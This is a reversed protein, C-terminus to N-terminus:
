AVAEMERGAKDMCPAVQDWVWPACTTSSHLPRLIKGLLNETRVSGLSHKVQSRIM